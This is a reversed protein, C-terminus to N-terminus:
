ADTSFFQLIITMMGAIVINIIALFYTAFAIKNQTKEAESANQETKTKVGIYLKLYTFLCIIQFVFLYSTGTSLLYYESSVSGKNIKTYHTLNLSVIWLLIIVTIISPAASTLFSKLLNLITRFQGKNEIKGIRDHIGYSIFMVSIIALAVIGYGYIVSNAPGNNADTPPSGFFIKICMGVISLLMMSNIMYEMGGRSKQDIAKARSFNHIIQAPKTAITTASM